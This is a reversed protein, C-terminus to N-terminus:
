SLKAAIAMCADIDGAELPALLTDLTSHVTALADACYQVGAESLKVLSVRADRPNKEKQVLGLKELPNLARTIGSASMGVEEALDIRRMARGPANRLRHLIYFESFSIGHVSLARDVQKFLKAHASSFAFLWELKTAM